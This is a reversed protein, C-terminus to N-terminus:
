QEKESQPKCVLEFLGNEDEGLYGNKHLKMYLGFRTMDEMGAYFLAITDTAREISTDTIEASKVAADYITDAMINSTVEALIELVSLHSGEAQVANQFRESGRDMTADIKLRAAGTSAKLLSYFHEFMQQAEESVDKHMWNFIKEEM